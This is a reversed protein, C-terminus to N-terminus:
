GTGPVATFNNPEIVTIKREIAPLRVAEALPHESYKEASAALALIQTESIDSFAVVDSIQPKGLTLTGTKDLLVVDAKALIEIYKGGKILLGRKAAAGITALMAIPTALAISCSCAVVLVAATALPDRRVLFTIAAIALVVPLFYTSFKDAFRQVEARNAEAE